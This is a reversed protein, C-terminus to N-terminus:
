KVVKAAKRAEEFELRIKEPPYAYHEGYGKAINEESRRGAFIKHRAIMYELNIYKYHYAKYKKTWITSPREKDKAIPNCEHAGPGYNIEKLRGANFCYAKDYSKSRVGHHINEIDLNDALNVMNYAEVVLIVAQEDELEEEWVDLFEDCDAVIVWGEEGKWCNNKIELYKTDSLKNNTDYPIVKCDMEKAILVTDDTSMNDYVVIDCAPFRTRYHNIFHPLMLEENYTITFVKM